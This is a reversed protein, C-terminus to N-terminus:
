RLLFVIKDRHRLCIHVFDTRGSGHKSGMLPIRTARLNIRPILITKKGIQNLFLLLLLKMGVMKVHLLLVWTKCLRLFWFIPIHPGCDFLCLLLSPQVLLFNHLPNKPFILWFYYLSFGPCDAIRLFPSNQPAFFPCFGIQDISRFGTNLKIHRRVQLSIKQWM